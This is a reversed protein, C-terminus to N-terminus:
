NAAALQKPLKFTWVMGGQNLYNVKKAVEGGWLPVAGGWGSVISVYQEGEMEWTVPQGVIGSGTQFSWLKEGTTDDLAIFEGEPTGFFVLGGATTMVGGWLPAENKYEWKWEGTLPDIAKLSGIHDEYNPKITFGSGLYAAGKKYTIPENWIDMGWENSPVYFLGTNQSFAMPMWNKGGLFSPSSFVMEGKAGDAAKSPDGPRNEEVYIPRGTEDIGSAWTIDKVFPWANLFKGDERNLVYFFGNRDATAFKKAGDKDTFAVVENVGDYDWGERPTTQFHWKIEGTAPDIGVRSAAYLNDGANGEVPTGANRLHSNWPAPNGAGFVLTNTEIDYSGGLWTAGGGTKWLDGPWTANLTGTMTSEKGNLTGMHGEIMPRTWVTEGTLADRAQVEGVIGFEGGSNGTIVLGNVILPAATYSYGEKYEAIKKNWVVDGTKLNLAVIRADLTGFYINDGYIAAGRNIVDCCPLIGEPLRADYQWLEKGTMVDVAYLRSYSATVYMVGDHVLPQTEQGRQKEGGFSFAWVPMLNQVNDKNLTALPSFRQLDRGMGNTLVDGTSAADGALQEETVGAWAAPATAAIIAALAAATFRNM